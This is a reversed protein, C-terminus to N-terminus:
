GMHPIYIFPLLFLFFILRTKFSSSSVGAVEVRRIGGGQRGFVCLVPWNWSSFTLRVTLFIPNFYFSSWVLLM